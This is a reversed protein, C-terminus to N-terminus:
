VVAASLESQHSAQFILAGGGALVMILVGLFISAIKGRKGNEGKVEEIEGPGM